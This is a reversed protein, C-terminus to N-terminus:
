ISSLLFEQFWITAMIFMKFVKAVAGPGFLILSIVYGDSNFVTNHLFNSFASAKLYFM